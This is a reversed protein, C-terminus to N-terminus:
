SNAVMGLDGPVLLLKSVELLYFKRGDRLLCLCVFLNRRLNLLLVEMHFYNRDNLVISTSLFILVFNFCSHYLFYCRKMSNM